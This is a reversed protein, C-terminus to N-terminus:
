RTVINLTKLSTVIGGTVHPDTAHVSLLDGNVEALRAIYPVGKKNGASADHNGIVIGVPTGSGPSAILKGGNSNLVTGDKVVEGSKLTGAERSIAGNGESVIFEGAHQGETKVVM